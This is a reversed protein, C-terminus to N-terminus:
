STPNHPEQPHDLQGPDVDVNEVDGKKNVRAEERRVTDSVKKSGKVQRKSVDVEEYVVPEKEVRVREERVPVHIERDDDADIDGQAARTPDVAHREVIVEEHTVPVDITQQETVVDKRVTVEGAEVQEKDARLREERLKLNDTDTGGATMDGTRSASRDLKEYVGTEPVHDWGRSDITDKTVNLFVRGDAVREVASIPIYRESTFIFGKSVTLYDADVSAIDGVKDGNADFVDWGNQIAQIDWSQDSRRRPEM